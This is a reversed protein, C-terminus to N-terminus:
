PPEDHGAMERDAGVEVLEAVLGLIEEAADVVAIASHQRLKALM